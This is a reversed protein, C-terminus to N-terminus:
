SRSMIRISFQCTFVVFLLVDVFFYVDMHMCCFISLFAPDYGLFFLVVCVFSLNCM